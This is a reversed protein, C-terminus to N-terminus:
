LELKGLNKTTPGLRTSSAGLCGLSIAKCRWLGLQLCKYKLSFVFVYLRWVAQFPNQTAYTQWHCQCVWASFGCLGQPSPIIQIKVQFKLNFRFQKFELAQSPTEWVWVSPWPGLPLECVRDRLEPRTGAEPRARPRWARFRIQASM